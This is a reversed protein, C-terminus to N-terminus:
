PSNRRKKSIAEWTVKEIDKLEEKPHYLWMLTDSDNTTSVFPSALVTETVDEGSKLKMKLNVFYPLRPNSRVAGPSYKAVLFGNKLVVDDDAALEDDDLGIDRLSEPIFSIFPTRFYMWLTENNWANTLETGVPRILMFRSIRYDFDSPNCYVIGSASGELKHYLGNWVEKFRYQVSIAWITQWSCFVILTLMLIIPYKEQVSRFFKPMCDTLIHMLLIILACNPWFFSREENRTLIAVVYGAAAIGICCLSVPSKFIERSRRRWTRNFLCIAAVVGLAGWIFLVRKVPLSLTSLFEWQFRSRMGESYGFIAAAFVYSLFLIYFNRSLRRNRVIIILGLGCISEVSFSEHWGGAILGLVLCLVLSRISWGHKENKLLYYLFGLNVVAAWIYNLSYDAEFLPTWPLFVLCCFWSVSLGSVKNVDKGFSSIKQCLIILLAMMVGNLLPFLEKYPSFLSTFVALANSIRGNDIARTYAYYNWWGKFSFESIGAHEKWNKMFMWDDTFLPTAYTLFSYLCVILAVILIYALKGACSGDANKVRGAM